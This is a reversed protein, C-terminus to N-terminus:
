GPNQWPYGKPYDPFEYLGFRKRFNRKNNLAVARAVMRYIALTIQHRVGIFNQM